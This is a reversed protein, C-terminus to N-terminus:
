EDWLFIPEQARRGQVNTKCNTHVRKSLSLTNSGELVVGFLQKRLYQLGFFRSIQELIFSQLPGNM